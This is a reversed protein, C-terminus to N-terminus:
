DKGQCGQNLHGESFVVDMVEFFGMKGAYPVSNDFKIADKVLFGYTNGNNSFENL